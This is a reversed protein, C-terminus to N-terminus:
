SSGHDANSLDLASLQNQIEDTYPGIFDVDAEMIEESTPISDKYSQLLQEKVMAPTSEATSKLLTEMLQQLEADLGDLDFISKM